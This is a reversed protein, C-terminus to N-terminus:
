PKAGGRTDGDLKTLIAGTIGVNDNFAKTLNAAEQGTMADVVLLVEDPRVVNKIAKLERMLPEDIGQRGATDVIITDFDNQVAYNYADRAIDVPNKDTGAEFVETETQQALQKLQDIAAPRYVDCAVLLVKRPPDEAKCYLSLKGCATTKGTGQLGCM